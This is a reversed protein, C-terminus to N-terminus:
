LPASTEVRLLSSFARHPRAESSQRRKFLGVSVLSYGPSFSFLLDCLYLLNLTYYFMCDSSQPVSVAQGPEGAEGPNGQFGQPGQSTSLLCFSNSCLSGSLSRKMEKRENNTGPAHIRQAPVVSLLGPRWGSAVARGFKPFSSKSLWCGWNSCCIFPVCNGALSHLSEICVLWTIVSRM